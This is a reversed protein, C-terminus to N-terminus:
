TTVGLVSVLKLSNQILVDKDDESFSVFFIEPHSSLAVFPPRDTGCAIWQFVWMWQDSIIRMSPQSENLFACTCPSAM